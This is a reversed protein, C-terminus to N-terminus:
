KILSIDLLDMVSQSSATDFSTCNVIIKKAIIKGVLKFTNTNIQVTGNPAYIIGKLDVSTASISIDGNASCIVIGKEASSNMKNLNFSINRDAVIYGKSIFSTGNVQINGSSIESKLFEIGHGYDTVTLSKDRINGDVSAIQKIEKVVDPMEILAAGTKREGINITQGWTDIKGHSSCVGSITLRTGSFEFAKNTHVDGTINGQNLYIRLAEDKSGSFLTYKFAESLLIDPKQVTFYGSGLAAEKGDPLLADLVVMYTGTSLAEHTWTKEATYSASVKIDARDSITGLIEGTNPDAIRIRPAIGNLDVNGTNSVTYRFGVADGPYIKKQLVELSGSVGIIGGTESGSTIEFITKSQASGADKGYVEMTVTYRGPLNKATNWANKLEKNTGPLLEPLSNYVVGTVTDLEDTIVTKVSLDREISNSSSNTVVQSIHVEQDATYQQKDVTVTCSLSSDTRIDFGAESVSIVKDGESWTVKARYTGAMTSGPNWLYDMTKSEGPNWTGSVNERVTEVVHGDADTIDVRGILASAYSTLNKVTNTIGVNENASYGPKDTTVKSDLMYRNVPIKLEPLEVTVATDNRDQYTLKTNQTLLVTTDSALNTGEYKLEFLKEQGMVLRDLTWRLTKSGDANNTISAPAPVIKAADVAMGNVPVTSELVINKGATDFIEGALETMMANLEQPTPSFKYTGGTKNAIDQMFTGNVGNGLGLTFIKIEKQIATTVKTYVASQSNPQGDSLLMFVKQRDKGVDAVIDFGKQLGLDMATGGNDFPMNTISQKILTKDSTLSIQTWASSGFGVVACRDEPQIMDAIIKAAEKTKTWPTGSMSGSSDLILVLDIPIRQPGEPTGEGILRFQATVSDTGPYLVAKDLSQTADIRTPPPPPLVKFLTEGELIINEGDFAQVKISYDRISSVEPTFSGFKLINVPQDAKSSMVATEKKIESSGDSISLRLELSKDINSETVVTAETSVEVPNDVRTSKPATSLLLTGVKFSPSITFQKEMSTLIKGSANDKAQVIISYDGPISSGTNWGPQNERYASVVTGNNQKVFYLLQVDPNSFTSDVQIEFTEYANYGYCETKTGDVDKYLRIADIRAYPMEMREKMAKIALATIYPSGYWSGDANQLSIISADVTDIPDVGVTNLVARYSLLTGTVTDKDTGWTKDEKQVSVLYEGAKKMATQLESSTLNTKTQFANLAIAIQATLSVVSDGNNCFSWSGDPLQKAILYSVAKQFISIEINEERTLAGLALATDLVDSGYGKSLGWGGDENQSGTLIAKVSAHKDSAKIFPLLRAAADNNLVVANEMWATSKELNDTFINNKSLYDSVESTDLFAVDSTGWSGDEKQNLDLWDLAKAIADEQPTAEAFCTSISISSTLMGLILVLAFFRQKLVQKCQM